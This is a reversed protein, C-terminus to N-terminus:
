EEDGEINYAPLRFGVELGGGERPKAWVDGQMSEVLRKCVALGLGAGSALKATRESRYFSEFIRSAEGEGVGFGRDLVTVTAGDPQGQLVVEIPGDPPSYKVANTVLNRVVHEIYSPEGSVAPPDGEARYILERDRGVDLSEVFKPLMRQLLVPEVTIERDLEARSLALLNELMRSLRNSEREIDNLIGASTEADLV